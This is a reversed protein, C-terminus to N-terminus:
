VAAHSSAGALGNREGQMSLAGLPRHTCAPGKRGQGTVPAREDQSPSTWPFSEFDGGDAGAGDPNPSSEKM